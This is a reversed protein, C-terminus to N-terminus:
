AGAGELLYRVRLGTRSTEMMGDAYELGVSVVAKIASLSFCKRAWAMPQSVHQIKRQEGSAWSAAGGILCVWLFVGRMDGWSNTTDTHEVAELLPFILTTNEMTPDQYITNASNTFTTQHLIAHTYVLAALRVSEHLWDPTPSDQMSPYPLLREYIQRHYRTPIFASNSDRGHVFDGTLTYMDNIIDLTRVSCSSRFRIFNGHPAYLPSIYPYPERTNQSVPSPAPSTALERLGKLMALTTLLLTVYTAVQHPLQGMGGRRHILGQLGQYHVQFASEDGGTESLLLHLISLITADNTELRGAIMSLVQTKARVTTSSDQWLGDALDRYVSSVSVHSLFSMHDACITQMWPKDQCFLASSDIYQQKLDDLPDSHTGYLGPFPFAPADEFVPPASRAYAGHTSSLIHHILTRLTSPWPAYSTYEPPAGTWTSSRPRSLLPALFDVDSASADSSTMAPSPTSSACASASRHLSTSTRDNSTTKREIRHKYMVHSRVHRMTKGAKFQDPHNAVVFQLAPGPELPPLRRRGLRRKSSSPESPSAM